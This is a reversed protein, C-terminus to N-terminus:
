TKIRPGQGHGARRAGRLHEDLEVGARSAEGVAVHRSRHAQHELALKVHDLLRLGALLARDPGGARERAARGVFDVDLAAPVIPHDDVERHTALRLADVIKEIVVQLQFTRDRDLVEVVVPLAPRTYSSLALLDVIRVFRRASPRAKVSSAVGLARASVLFCEVAGVTFGVLVAASDFGGAPPSLAFTTPANMSLQNLPSRSSVM